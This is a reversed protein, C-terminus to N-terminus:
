QTLLTISIYTALCKYKSQPQIKKHLSFSHISILKRLIVQQSHNKLPNLALSRFLYVAALLDCQIGISHTEVRVESESTDTGVFYKAYMNKHSKTLTNSKESHTDSKPSLLSLEQSVGASPLEDVM